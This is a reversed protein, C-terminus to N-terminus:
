AATDVPLGHLQWELMGDELRRAPRGHYTLLRVADHAMVCFRGRCYAVVDADPPLDALRDALEDVPINLAGPLHGAAYEAAPRVDLVTVEGATARRLLEDRSVPEGDPSGLYAARPAPVGALPPAPSDLPPPSLSTVPASM